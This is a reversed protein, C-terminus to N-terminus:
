STSLYEKKQLILWSILIFSGCGLAILGLMNIKDAWELSIFWMGVAGMTFYTFILLSSASGVDKDVQELVLNNSPPRRRGFRDSIPGYFFLFFGYTVFFCVLTLNVVSHPQNWNEALLPINPLIM